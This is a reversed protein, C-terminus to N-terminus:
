DFIDCAFTGLIFFHGGSPSFGVVEQKKTSIQTM